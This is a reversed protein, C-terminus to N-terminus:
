FNFTLSTMFRNSAEIKSISDSNYNQVIPKKFSFGVSFNRVYVELGTNLLLANGGSNTQTVLGDQHHSGHEFYLGANPLLTLSKLNQWYFFQNSVYFQNGFRYDNKNYTNLKYGTEFNSGMKNYRITYITSLSFDFSGSGLQFTPNVLEGQDEFNYKGTPLKIGLGGSLFHKTKKSLNEGNNILLYNASLTVDSLGNMNLKQHTGDMQNFSYPIFAFVQINKNIYFRGWVEVKNYTDNSYEPGLYQSNHNMSASFHSQSWRMGVFNKGFQPLIGLYNGGLSSGCVDCASTNQYVFSLIIMLITKKM